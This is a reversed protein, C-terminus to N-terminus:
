IALFLFILVIYWLWSHFSFLCKLPLLLLVNTKSSKPSDTRLTFLIRLRMTQSCHDLLMSYCPSAFCCACMKSPGVSALFIIPKCKNRFNLKSFTTWRLFLHKSFTTWRLFYRWLSAWLDGGPRIIRGKLNAYNPSSRKKSSEHSGVENNKKMSPGKVENRIWSHHRALIGNLQLLM